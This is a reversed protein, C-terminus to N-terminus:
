RTLTEKAGSMTSAAGGTAGDYILLDTLGIGGFNGPIIMTHGPSWNNYSKMPNINGQGWVDYFGAGGTAGDYILLDTQGIVSTGGFNGPVIITHGPSWNNYSKMPNINGQGWVDYFGAGGTAGDYILLDTQGTVSTGGFNGPVIITHGPSWNTYRKLLVWSLSSGNSHCSYFEAIGSNEDYFLFDSFSGAGGGFNGPIIHTWTTGWGSTVYPAMGSLNPTSSVSVTGTQNDYFLNVDYGPRYPLIGIYGPIQGHLQGGLGAVFLLIARFLFLHPKTVQSFRTSFRTAIKTLMSFPVSARVNNMSGGTNKCLFSGPPCDAKGVWSGYM